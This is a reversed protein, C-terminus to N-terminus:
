QRWKAKWTRLLLTALNSIYPEPQKQWENVVLGIRSKKLEAPEVDRYMLGKLWGVAENQAASVGRGGVAHLGAELADKAECLGKLGLPVMCPPHAEWKSDTPTLGM